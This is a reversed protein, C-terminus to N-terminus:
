RLFMLPLKYNMFNNSSNIYGNDDSSSLYYSNGIQIYITNTYVNNNTDMDIVGSLKLEIKISDDKEKIFFRAGETILFNRKLFALDDTSFLSGNNYEIIKDAEEKTYFKNLYDLILEKGNIFIKKKNNFRM